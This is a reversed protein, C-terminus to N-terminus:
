LVVKEDFLKYIKSGPSPPIYETLSERNAEQISWILDKFGLMHRFKVTSSFRANIEFIMPNGNKLRLQINISGNLNLASAINKLVEDIKSNEIVEAQGTLGGLLKRKFIISRTEGTTSRFLGCTYEGESDCIYEQWIYDTGDKSLVKALEASNVFTLNKSGSGRRPKFIVPYFDPVKTGIQTAPSPIKLENLFISTNLKDLGITLSKSNAKILKVQPCSNFRYISSLKSLEMENTPIFYDPSHSSLFREIDELYKESNAKSILYCEDFYLFGSHDNNIDTGILKTNPYETRLIKCISIAIDGGCGSVIIKKPTEM